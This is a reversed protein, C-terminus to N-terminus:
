AQSFTSSLSPHHRLRGLAAPQGLFHGSGGGLGPSSPPQRSRGLSQPSPWPTVQLPGDEKGEGKPCGCSVYTRSVMLLGPGKGRKLPSTANPPPHIPQNNREGGVSYRGAGSPPPPHLLHAMTVGSGQWLLHPIRSQAEQSHRALLNAKFAGQGMSLSQCVLLWM